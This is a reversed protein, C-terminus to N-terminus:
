SKYWGGSRRSERGSDYIWDGLNRAPVSFRRITVTGVNKQRLDAAAARRAAGEPKLLLAPFKKRPMEDREVDRVGPGQSQCQSSEPHSWRLRLEM